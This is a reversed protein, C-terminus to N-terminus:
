MWLMAVPLVTGAALTALIAVRQKRFQLAIAVGFGSSAILALAMLVFFWELPASRHLRPRALGARGSSPAGDSAAAAGPRGAAEGAPAADSTPRAAGPEGGAGTEGATSTTAGPRADAAGTPTASPRPPRRTPTDLSQLKHVQGLKAWVASPQSDGEGENLGLLLVLGSLAFFVITPAFFVSLWLHLRRVLKM